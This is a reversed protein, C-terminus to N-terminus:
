HNLIFESSNLFAWYVDELGQHHSAVHRQRDRPARQAPGSRLLRKLAAMEKPTPYRSLAALSLKAIKDAESGKENLINALYSGPAASVARDVLEGNMMLLSLPITGNFTSEEDNEETEFSTVFQRLWEQRPQETQEWRVRGSADGHSVILLSDYLQEATMPKVYMHSFLPVEGAAPDDVTNTDNYQSTLQYAETQCIWRILQKQDYGSRVFENALRALVDPHSPPNHPGM